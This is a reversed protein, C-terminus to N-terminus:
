TQNGIQFTIPVGPGSHTYKVDEPQAESDDGQLIENGMHCISQETAWLQTHALM